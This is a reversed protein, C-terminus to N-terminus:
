LDLESRTWTASSAEVQGAAAVISVRYLPALPCLERGERGSLKNFASV